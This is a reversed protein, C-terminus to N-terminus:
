RGIVDEINCGATAKSTWSDRMPADQAGPPELDAANSVGIRKAVREAVANEGYSRLDAALPPRSASVFSM